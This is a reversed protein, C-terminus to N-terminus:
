VMFVMIIMVLDRGMRAFDAINSITLKDGVVYAFLTFFWGWSSRLTTLM